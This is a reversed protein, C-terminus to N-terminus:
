LKACIILIKRQSYIEYSFWILLKLQIEMCIQTFSSQIELTKTRLLKGVVHLNRLLKAEILDM